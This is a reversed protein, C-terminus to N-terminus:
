ENRTKEFYSKFFHDGFITKFHDAVYKYLSLLLYHHTKHKNCFQFLFLSECSFNKVYLERSLYSNNIDHPLFYKSFEAVISPVIICKLHHINSVDLELNRFVNVTEDRIKHPDLNGDVKWILTITGTEYEECGLIKQRGYMVIAENIFCSDMYKFRSAFFTQTLLLDNMDISEFHDSFSAGTLVNHEGHYCLYHVFVGWSKNLKLTNKLTTYMYKQFTSLHDIVAYDEDYNSLHINEKYINYLTELMSWWEDHLADIKMGNINVIYCRPLKQSNRSPKEFCKTSNENSCLDQGTQTDVTQNDFDEFQM